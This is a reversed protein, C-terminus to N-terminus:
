VTRPWPPVPAKGNGDWRAVWQEAILKEVLNTGDPLYVDAVYEGGYKYDKITLLTVQTFPVLITELYAKAALGADTSKEAANCGNLRVPWDLIWEKMGKDINFHVTDGDVVRVAIGVFPRQRPWDINV